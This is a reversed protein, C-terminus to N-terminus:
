RTQKRTRSVLHEQHMELGRQPCGPNSRTTLMHVIHHSVRIRQVKIEALGGCRIADEVAGTTGWSGVDSHVNYVTLSKLCAQM